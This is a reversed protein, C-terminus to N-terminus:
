SAQLKSFFGNRSYVQSNLHTNLKDTVQWVTGHFRWSKRLIASCEGVGEFDLLKFTDIEVGEVSVLARKLVCTHQNLARTRNINM